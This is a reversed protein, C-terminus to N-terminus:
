FSVWCQDFFKIQYGSGFRISQEADFRPWYFFPLGLSRPRVERLDKIIANGKTVSVMEPGGVYPENWCDAPIVGKYARAFDNIIAYLTEFDKEICERIM